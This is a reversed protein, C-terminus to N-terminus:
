WASFPGGVQEIYWVEVDAQEIQSSYSTLHGCQQNCMDEAQTFNVAINNFTFNVGSATTYNDPFMYAAPALRCLIRGSALLVLLALWAGTAALM